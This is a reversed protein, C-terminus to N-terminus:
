RGRHGPPSAFEDRPSPVPSPPDIPVGARRLAEETDYYYTVARKNASRVFPVYYIRSDVDRGYGTGMSGLGGSLRRDATAPAARGKEERPLPLPALEEFAVLGIVGVNAPYGMLGAYSEDRSVFSFAAVTDRDRRWGKIVIRSHPAVIYGTSEESASKGNIVSLGDVSVIATIRRPGHNAVRIQYEAGLRPVPLYTRGRHTITRVPQGDVLVDMSVHMFGPRPLIVERRDWPGPDPPTGAARVFFVLLCGVALCGALGLRYRTM